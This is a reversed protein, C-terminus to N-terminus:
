IPILDMWEERFRRKKWCDVLHLPFLVLLTLFGNDFLESVYKKKASSFGRLTWTSVGEERPGNWLILVLPVDGFKMKPHNKMMEMLCNGLQVVWTSPSRAYFLWDDYSVRGVGAEARLRGLDATTITPPAITVVRFTNNGFKKTAKNYMLSTAGRVISTQLHQAIRMGSFLLNQSVMLKDVVLSTGNLPCSLKWGRM